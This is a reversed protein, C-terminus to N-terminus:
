RWQEQFDPHDSFPLALARLLVGSRVIYANPDDDEVQRRHAALIERKATVERLVRATNFWADEHDLIGGDGHSAVAEDEDLRQTLFDVLESM